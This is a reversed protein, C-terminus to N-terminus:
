RGNGTAGGLTPFLTKSKQTELADADALAWAKVFLAMQQRAEETKGLAQKAEVLGLHARGSGPDRELAATFFAEAEQWRQLALATKGAVEELPNPYLPPEAYGLKIEEEIGLKFQALAAEAQGERALLRARLEYPAVKLATAQLRQRGGQVVDKEKALKERVFAAERELAALQARAGVVDGKGLKALGLAYIRWAEFVEFPGADPLTKGDLIEDWKEFRVLTRLRALRAELATRSTQEGKQQGVELLEQSVRLSDRYRGQYNYVMTLLHINHGYPGAAHDSEEQNDRIYARDVAASNELARTAAEWQNVHIYTHAPMHVAHGVKPALSGYIDASPVGDVARKGAETAHIMYHHAALHQPEKALVVQLLAIAEVTGPRPTGDRDYGALSALALFLKAEVDDPYFAVLKRLAQQYTDSAGLFGNNQVVAKEGQYRAEVAALYLQEKPSAQAALERARKLAAERRAPNVDAMAIGWHAMACTPDLQAARAFSRDAEYFWFSHLLALGQNFFQQAESSKTTIPLSVKGYGDMLQAPKTAAKTASPLHCVQTNDKPLAPPTQQALTLSSLGSLLFGAYLATPRKM